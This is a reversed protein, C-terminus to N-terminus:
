QKIEEGDQIEKKIHLKKEIREFRRLNDKQSIRVESIQSSVEQIAQLEKENAEGQLSGLKYTAGFITSIVGISPMVYKKVDDFNM